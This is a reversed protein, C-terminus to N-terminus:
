NTRDAGPTHAIETRNVLTTTTSSSPNILEPTGSVEVTEKAAAVTLAIHLEQVNDSAVTIPQPEASFGAATITVNYEGAPVNLVTAVGDANTKGQLKLASSRSQIVVEAGQVPRHQPDHVIVKVAGFVSAYVSISTFMLLAAIIAKTNRVMIFGKERAIANLFQQTGACSGTDALLAHRKSFVACIALFVSAHIWAASGVM